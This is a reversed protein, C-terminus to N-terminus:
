TRVSLQTNLNHLSDPMPCNHQQSPFVCNSNPRANQGAAAQAYTIQGNEALIDILESLAPNPDQAWLTGALLVSAALSAAFIVLSCNRSVPKMFPHIIRIVYSLTVTPPPHRQM